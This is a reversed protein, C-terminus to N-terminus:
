GSVQSLVKPGRAHYRPHEARKEEWSVGNNKMLMGAFATIPAVPRPIDSSSSTNLKPDPQAVNKQSMENMKQQADFIRKNDDIM